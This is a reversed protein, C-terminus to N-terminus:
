GQRIQEGRSGVISHHAVVALSPRPVLVQVSALAIPTERTRWRKSACRVLMPYDPHLRRLNRRITVVTVSHRCDRGHSLDSAM